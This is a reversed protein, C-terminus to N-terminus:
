CLVWSISYTEKCKKRIAEAEQEATSAQDEEKLMEDVANKNGDQFWWRTVGSGVAPLMSTSSTQIGRDRATLSRLSDLTPSRVTEGPIGTLSSFPAHTISVPSSVLSPQVRLSSSYALPRSISSTPMSARALNDLLVPHRISRSGTSASHHLQGEQHHHHHPPMLAEPPKRLRFAEESIAQHLAETPNQEGRRTFTPLEASRREPWITSGNPENRIQSDSPYRRHTSKGLTESVAVAPPEAVGSTTSGTFWRTIPSSWNQASSLSSAISGVRSPMNDSKQIQSSSEVVPKGDASSSAAINVRTTDSPLPSTPRSREISSRPSNTFLSGLRDQLSMRPEHSPSHSRSTSAFPSSSM